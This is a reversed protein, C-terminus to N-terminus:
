ISYCIPQLRKTFKLIWIKKMTEIGFEMITSSNPTKYDIYEWGGSSFKVKKGERIQYYDFVYEINPKFIINDVNYMNILTDIPKNSIDEIWIGDDEYYKLDNKCSFMIFIFILFFIALWNKM